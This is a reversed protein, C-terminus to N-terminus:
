VSVHHAVVGRGALEAALAHITLDPKTELRALLWEREAERKRPQARGVPRAAASGTARLRRAWKVASAVSVGFLKATERCSCGSTVSAAVRECLDNSCAKAM